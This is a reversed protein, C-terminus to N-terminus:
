DFLKLFTKASEKMNIMDFLYRSLWDYDGSLVEESLRLMNEKSIDQYSNGVRAIIKNGEWEGVGKFFYDEASIYNIGLEKCVISHLIKSDWLYIEKRKPDALFRVNNYVANKSGLIEARSPNLFVEGYFSSYKFGKHFKESINDLISVIKKM